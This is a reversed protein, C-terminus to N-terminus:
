IPETKSKQYQYSEIIDNKSVDYIKSKVIM